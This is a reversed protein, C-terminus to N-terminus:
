ELLETVKLTRALRALMSLPVTKLETILRTPLFQTSVAEPPEKM